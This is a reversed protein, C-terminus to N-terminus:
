KLYVKINLRDANKPIDNKSIRYVQDNLIIEKDNLFVKDVKLIKKMDTKVLYEVRIMEKQWPFFVKFSKGLHENYFIGPNIIIDGSLFQIGLVREFITYVYWSASGTLYHYLGAGENNFYEPIFPNIVAKDDISMNYVSELVKTGEKVFGRKLLAYAFMIVMHNFVAGNEKEGYAFGYARGLEPYINERKTNLRFGQIKKDFLNKKVSRWISKIQEDSAVGSMVAFVQATLSMDCKGNRYGNVPKGKNDYYGNFFGYGVWEKNQLWKSMHDTKRRLDKILDDIKISIKEGSFQNVQEFYKALLKIKASYKNYNVSHDLTDILIKFEKFVKIETHQQKLQELVVIMDRLNHAYMFSFAVSEGKDSAMDLGDNWDANELKIINHEGVNFFQVLQQILVHELVTGQYVRNNNGRLLFDNQCFIKDRKKARNLQSDRFYSLEKLWVDIDNTRNVYFKITLYPWVGHDMWVRSIKNRDSMFTGDSNIITANSGDTRIGKCSDVIITKARQPDILTLALADQWLDRWGRGGKGYDFHPLFSCGFLKRLTPQLSVWKIWNNFNNDSFDFSLTQIYRQWYAKTNELKKLIKKPSNIKLYYRRIDEPNKTIGSFICYEASMGPKLEKENFRFAACMEKGDFDTKSKTVPEIMKYIADPYVAGGNGYFMDLSPFQGLPNVGPGEYGCVFYVNKNQKHGHENFIMTPSVRISNKTIDVKNLLSSVHRHDHLCKESRAYIPLFSTPELRIKKKSINKIEVLMIEVPMDHPIFSTIKFCLGKTKKEIVHYLFGATLIDDAKESLRIISKDTKIFFDRKCLYNTRLDEMAAPPMLYRENDAKIDGALGPTIASLLSGSKDTLPFYTKWFDPVSVQFTGNNDVFKFYM